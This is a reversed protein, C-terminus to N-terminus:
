FCPSAWSSPSGTKASSDQWRPPTPTTSAVEVYLLGVSSSVLLLLTLLGSLAYAFTLKNKPPM